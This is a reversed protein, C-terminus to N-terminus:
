NNTIHEYKFLHNTKANLESEFRLAKYLDLLNDMQLNSIIANYKKLYDLIQLTSIGESVVLMEGLTELFINCPIQFASTIETMEELTPFTFVKSWGVTKILIQQQVDLQDKSDTVLKTIKNLEGKLSNVVYSTAFSDGISNLIRGAEETTTKANAFLLGALLKRDETEKVPFFSTEFDIGFFTTTTEM